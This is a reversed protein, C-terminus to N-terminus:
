NAERSGGQSCLARNLDETWGRLVSYASSAHLLFCVTLSCPLPLYHIDLFATEHTEYRLWRLSWLTTFDEVRFWVWHLPRVFESFSGWVGCFQQITLPLFLSHVKDSISWVPTRLAWFHSTLAPTAHSWLSPCSSPMTSISLVETGKRRLFCWWHQFLCM